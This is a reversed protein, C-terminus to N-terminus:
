EANDLFEKIRDVYRDFFNKQIRTATSDQKEKINYEEEVAIEPVENVLIQATAV